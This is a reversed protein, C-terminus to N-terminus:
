FYINLANLVSSPTTDEIKISEFPVEELFNYTYEFFSRNDYM